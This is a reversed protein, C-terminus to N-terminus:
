GAKGDIIRSFYLYQEEEIKGKTGGVFCSMM